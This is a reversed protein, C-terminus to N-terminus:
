VAVRSRLFIIQLARFNRRTAIQFLIRPRVAAGDSAYQLFEWQDLDVAADDQGM